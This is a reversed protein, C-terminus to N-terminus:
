DTECRSSARAFGQALREAYELDESTTIKVNCPHGEVLVVPYGLREVLSADDTGTYGDAAARELAAVLVSTRFAQPTQAAWVGERDVTIAGERGGTSRKLTDVVPIAACAAGSVMATDVVRQIVEHSVFPRAADHILVLSIDEAVASVGAAVSAQRTAGGPVIRKVKFLNYREIIAERSYSEEGPPVVLIIDRILPSSEFVSLTKALIPTGALPLFQKPRGHGLRTGRGAAPILAAIRV